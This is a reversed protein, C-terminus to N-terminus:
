LKTQPLITYNWEGHFTDRIIHLSALETDTVKIKTKYINKDIMATVTLGSKTTTHNLLEIVVELSVLPKARWNISIFSFLKHEIANWKSTYPPYHSVLIALGTQNALKQLEVKFLKTRSGNSGGGDAAIMLTTANPFDIKGSNNWWRRISEVSFAATDHDIGVNIFGKNHILDYIGYPAVKGDALSKFDYVNVKTDTNKAIWERGNNKFNGILEKKKCDISIVPNNERIAKKAKANIYEFQANRDPHNAGKGEITKKNAKLAFGAAKLIRYTSMPSITYGKQQLAVTIHEMSYSTWQIPSEPDGKPNAIEKAKEVLLPQDVSLKKRGGGMLRIRDTAEAGRKIERIGKTITVRSMGSERQVKSIGGYGLQLAETAFYLRLDRENLRERMVAYVTGTTWQNMM